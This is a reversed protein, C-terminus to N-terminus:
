GLDLERVDTPVPEPKGFKEFLADKIARSQFGRGLMQAYKVDLLKAVTTLFDLAYVGVITNIIANETYITAKPTHGSEHIKEFQTALKKPMGFEVLLESKFISHGDCIEVCRM